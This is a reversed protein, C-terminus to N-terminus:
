GVRQHWWVQGGSPPNELLGHKIAPPYWFFVLHRTTQHQKISQNKTQPDMPIEMESGHLCYRVLYLKMIALAMLSVFHTFGIPPWNLLHISCKQSCLQQNWCIMYHKAENMKPNLSKGRGCFFDESVRQYVNIYSHFIVMKSHLDAIFQRHELECVTPKGSLLGSLAKRENSEELDLIFPLSRM